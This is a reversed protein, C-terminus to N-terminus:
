ETTRNNTMTTTRMSTTTSTTTPKQQQYHHHDDDKDRGSDADDTSLWSMPKRSRGCVHSSTCCCSSVKYATAVLLKKRSADVVSQYQVVPHGFGNCVHAPTQCVGYPRLTLHWRFAPSAVTFMGFSTKPAQDAIGPEVCIFAHLWSM